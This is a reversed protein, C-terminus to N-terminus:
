DFGKRMGKSWKNNRKSRGLLEEIDSKKFGDVKDRDHPKM